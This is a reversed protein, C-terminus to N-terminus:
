NQWGGNAAAFIVRGKGSRARSHNRFTATSNHIRKFVNLQAVTDAHASKFERVTEEALVNELPVGNVTINRLDKM